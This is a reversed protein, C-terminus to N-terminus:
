PGEELSERVIGALCQRVFVMIGVASAGSARMVQLVPVQDSPVLVRGCSCTVGRAGYYVADLVDVSGGCSPCGVYAERPFPSDLDRPFLVQSFTSEIGPPLPANLSISGTFGSMRQARASGHQTGAAASYGYAISDVCHPAGGLWISAGVGKVSEGSGM